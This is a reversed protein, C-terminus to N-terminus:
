LRHGPGPEQQDVEGTYVVMKRSKRIDGVGPNKVALSQKDKSTGGSNQTPSGLPLSRAPVVLTQGM